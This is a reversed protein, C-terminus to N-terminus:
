VCSEFSSEPGLIEILAPGLFGQDSQVNEPGLFIRVIQVEKHYESRVGHQSSDSLLEM